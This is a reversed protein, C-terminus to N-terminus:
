LAWPIMVVFWPIPVVLPLACKIDNNRFRLACVAVLLMSVCATLKNTAEYHNWVAGISRSNAIYNSPVASVVIQFIVNQSVRHVLAVQEM